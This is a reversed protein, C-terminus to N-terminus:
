GPADACIDFCSDLGLDVFFDLLKASLGRLALRGHKEALNKHLTILMGVGLSDISPVGVLDIEVDTAGAELVSRYARYFQGSGDLALSGRLSLFAKQQVQRITVQLSGMVRRKKAAVAGGFTM